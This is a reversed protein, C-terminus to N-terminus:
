ATYKNKMHIIFGYSTIEIIYSCDGGSDDEDNDDDEDGADGDDAGEDFDNHGDEEGDGTAPLSLGLFSEFAGVFLSTEM